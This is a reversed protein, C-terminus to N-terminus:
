GGANNSFKLSRSNTRGPTKSGASVIEQRIELQQNVFKRFSEKFISM